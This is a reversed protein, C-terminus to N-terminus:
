SIISDLAHKVSPCETANGLEERRKILRSNNVSIIELDSPGSDCLTKDPRTGLVEMHVPDSELPVRFRNPTESLKCFEEMNIKDPGSPDVLEFRVLSGVEIDPGAYFRIYGGKWRSRM